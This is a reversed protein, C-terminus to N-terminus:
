LFHHITSINTYKTLETCLFVNFDWLKANHCHHQVTTDTYVQIIKRCTVSTTNFPEFSLSNISSSNYPSHSSVNIGQKYPNDWLRTYSVSSIWETYSQNLGPDEETHFLIRGLPDTVSVM